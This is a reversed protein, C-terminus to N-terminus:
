GLIEEIVVVTIPLKRMGDIKLDHHVQMGQSTTHSM